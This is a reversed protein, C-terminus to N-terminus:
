RGGHWGLCLEARRWGQPRSRSSSAVPTACAAGVLDRRRQSRGPRRRCGGPRRWRQPRICCAIQCRPASPVASAASAAALRCLAALPASWWSSCALQLAFRGPQEGRGIAEDVGDIGSRMRQAAVREALRSLREPRRQDGHGGRRGCRRIGAVIRGGPPAAARCCRSSCCTALTRDRRRHQQRGVAARRTALRRAVAYGSGRAAAAAVGWRQRERRGAMLGLVYDRAAGALPSRASTLDTLLQLQDAM